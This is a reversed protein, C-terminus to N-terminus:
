EDDQIRGRGSRVRVAIVGAILATGAALVLSVVLLLSRSVGAPTDSYDANSIATAVLFPDKEGQVIVQDVLSQNAIQAARADALETRITM